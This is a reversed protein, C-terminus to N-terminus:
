FAPISKLIRLQLYTIRTFQTDTTSTILVREPDFGSKCIQGQSASAPQPYGGTDNKGGPKRNPEALPPALSRVGEPKSAIGTLIM